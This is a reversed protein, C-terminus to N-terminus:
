VMVERYLDLLRLEMEGWNYTEEYAQRANKGLQARLTPERSLRLLAAELEGVYGYTVVLGCQEQEVLLDMNTGRAAVLPKGLLMAEFLKNPSSYRHNLIRPDYTALLVDAQRSLELSREYGVRGHWNVNPLDGAAALIEEQDPGFGALDLCFRPQRRLVELLILLGREVQLNGVYAIRLGGDGVPQPDPEPLPRSPLANYIVATRKPKSGQIQAIRAEDALIVADAHGILALDLRRIASVVVAPTARLMDAYFDFIDYIVKKGWLRGAALAPLLTDFDCAHIVDYSSRNRRLWGFLAIQWRLQHTINALGRGFEAKVRCRHVAVGNVVEELPMQGNMDWGLVRVQCGAQQLSRAIKEVRPDPAVPTARCILVRINM